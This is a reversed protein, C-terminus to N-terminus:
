DWLWHPESREPRPQSALCGRPIRRVAEQAVQPQVLGQEVGGRAQEPACVVREAVPAARNRASALLPAM